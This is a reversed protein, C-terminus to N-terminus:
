ISINNIVKWVLEGARDAALKLNSEYEDKNSDENSTDDSITRIILFPTKSIYSIQSVAGSEMDVAVPNDFEKYVYDPLNERTVFKDGSILLGNKIHDFNFSAIISILKKDCEYYLPMQAMQGLKYGFATVDCDYYCVKNAILTELPKITNSISGAVGVNIIYDFKKNSMMLGMKFAMSTKGIGGLILTVEFEQGKFNYIDNGFSYKLNSAKIIGDIEEQMAAVILFNIMNIPQYYKREREINLNKM